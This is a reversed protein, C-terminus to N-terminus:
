SDVRTWLVVVLAVSRVGSLSLFSKVEPTTTSLRRFLFPWLELDKVHTHFHEDERVEPASEEGLASSHHSFEWLISM